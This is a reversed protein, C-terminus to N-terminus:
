PECEVSWCYITKPVRGETAKHTFCINLPKMENKVITTALSECISWMNGHDWSYNVDTSVTFVHEGRKLWEPFDGIHPQVEAFEKRFIDAMMAIKEATYM